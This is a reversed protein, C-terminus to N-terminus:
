YPPDIFKELFKFLFYSSICLLPLTMENLFNYAGFFLSNM